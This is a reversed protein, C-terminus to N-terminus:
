SVKIRFNATRQKTIQVRKTRDPLCSNKLLSSFHEHTKHKQFGLMHNNDTFQALEKFDRSDLKWLQDGVLKIMFSRDHPRYVLVNTDGPLEYVRLSMDSTVDKSDVDSLKCIFQLLKNLKGAGM